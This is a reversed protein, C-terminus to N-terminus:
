LVLSATLLFGGFGVLDTVMTLFINSALAPDQGLSKLVLPVGAGAVVAVAMNVFVAVAIVLGVAADAAVVGGLVGSLGAIVLGNIVGVQAERAIVRPARQAPIDGVALARIVVALSQAGTNGGLLAVMPMLAALTANAEITGEFTRLFLALTLGMALNLTIWPLRRRVSVAIPTYVTEEAGAGVMMAIDETAEEQVAELAESVKVMGLLRGGDDVVPIAILHYRQILEAVVERDTDTKVQVPSEVMVEDVGTGPRAFVLDRFSLVGALRSEDDVIYVYRLNSGLTENLQRLREIAEGTTIGIPLTAVDTTMLGGASDDAYLALRVAESDVGLEPTIDALLDEDLEGIVDAAQDAEMVELLHAAEQPPLEALVEAAAAPRMEDLVDAADEDDLDAILEAAAEETIAELIDAADQPLQGALAEWEEGHDELYSEADEPRRRALERLGHALERPRLLRFRM